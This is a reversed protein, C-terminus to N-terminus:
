LRIDVHARRRLSKLWKRKAKELKETQVRRAIERRATAYSPFQSPQRNLLKMVVVANRFRFPESVEGRELRLAVQELTKAIRRYKGTKLYPSGKPARVKLDGGIGNTVPDDSYQKALQAFDSGARAQAAIERAQTMKAELVDKSANKGVRLVIWAPHYLLMGRERRLMRRYMAKLEQRTIRVQNQVLRNVLKGELVQRRIEQRYEQRSLGSQRYVDDQLQAVTRGAIRAIRAITRDVDEATVTINAKIAAQRELEEDVMKSLMERKIRNEAPICPPSGLPCQVHLRVLFPRARENLDSLLIAKEGVVAVVREIVIANAPQAQSLVALLAFLTAVHVLHSRNPTM